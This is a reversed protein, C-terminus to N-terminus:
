LFVLYDFDLTQLGLIQILEPERIQKTSLRKWGHSIGSIDCPLWKVIRTVGSTEAPFGM